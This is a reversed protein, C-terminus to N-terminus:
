SGPQSRECILIRREGGLKPRQKSLVVGEPLLAEQAGARFRRKARRRENPVGDAGVRELGRDALTSHTGDPQGPAAAAVDFSAGGHFKEIDGKESAGTLPSEFALAAEECAQRMGVDGVKDVRADRSGTLRVEDELMHVPLLDVGIAILAPQVELRSYPEKE